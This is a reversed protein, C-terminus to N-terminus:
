ARPDHNERAYWRSVFDQCQGPNTFELCHDPHRDDYDEPFLTVRYAHGANRVNLLQGKQWHEPIIPAEPEIIVIQDNDDQMEHEPPAARRITLKSRSM